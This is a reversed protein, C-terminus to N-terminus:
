CAADDPPRARFWTAIDRMRPEFDGPASINLFGASIDGRNEFTHTVGGPVLVFARSFRRGM